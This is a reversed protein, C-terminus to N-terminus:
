GPIVLLSSPDIDYLLLIRQCRRNLGIANENTDAFFKTGPIPEYGHKFDGQYKSFYIKKTGKIELIRDQDNPFMKLVIKILQLYVSKHSDAEYIKNQFMFGSVKSGTLSKNPRSLDIGIKCLTKLAVDKENPNLQEFRKRLEDMDFPIKM